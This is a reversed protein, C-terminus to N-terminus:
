EKNTMQLLQKCLTNLDDNQELFIVEKIEWRDKAHNLLAPRIVVFAMKYLGSEIAKLGNKWGTNQEFELFGLEDVILCDTPVTGLFMQNAWQMGAAEFKWECEPKRRDYGPQYRAILRKQGSAIYQAHIQIKKDSEFFGPSIIGDVKKRNNKLEEVLLQCLQTKGVNREGSILTINKSISDKSAKKKLLILQNKKDM